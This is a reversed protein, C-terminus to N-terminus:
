ATLPLARQALRQYAQAVDQHNIKSSGVLLQMRARRIVGKELFAGFLNGRQSSEQPSSVWHVQVQDRPEIMWLWTAQSDTSSLVATSNSDLQEDDGSQAALEGHTWRKWGASSQSVIEVSPSSDLLQTQISIWVEVAAYLPQAVPLLRWDVQFGYGDQDAQRFRAILDCDREYLEDVTLSHKPLPRIALAQWSSGNQGAIVLPVDPRAPNVQISWDGCRAGVSGGSWKWDAQM